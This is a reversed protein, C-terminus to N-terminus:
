KILIDIIKITKDEPEWDMSDFWKKFSSLSCGSLALLTIVVILLKKM